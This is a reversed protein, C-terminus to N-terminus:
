EKIGYYDRWFGAIEDVMPASSPILGSGYRSDYREAYDEYANITQRSKALDESQM